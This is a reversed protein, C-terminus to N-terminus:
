RWLTGSHHRHCPMNETRAAQATEPRRSQCARIQRHPQDKAVRIPQGGILGIAAAHRQDLVINGMRVRDFCLGGVMLLGDFPQQHGALSVLGLLSDSLQSRSQRRLGVDDQQLVAQAALVSHRRLDGVRAAQEGGAGFARKQLRVPADPESAVTEVPQTICGVRCGGRKHLVQVVTANGVFPRRVDQGAQPALQCDVARDVRQRDQVVATVAAQELVGALDGRQAGLQAIQQAAAALRRSRLFQM